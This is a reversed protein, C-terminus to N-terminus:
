WGQHSTQLLRRSHAASSSVWWFQEQHDTLLPCYLYMNCSSILLLKAAWFRRVRVHLVHVHVHLVHVHVHLIMYGQIRAHRAGGHLRESCCCVSSHMTLVSILWTCTCTCWAVKCVHVTCVEEGRQSLPSDGGIKGYLNCVSEGHQLLLLMDKYEVMVWCVCRSMSGVRCLYICRPQVHVNM